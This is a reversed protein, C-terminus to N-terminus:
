PREVRNCDSQLWFWFPECSGDFRYEVAKIDEFQFITSNLESLLMYSGASTSANPIIRSFDKFDVIAIGDPTISVSNLMGATDESFWSILGRAQEDPAPGALQAELAARLRPETETATSGPRIVAQVGFSEEPKPDKCTFYVLVEGGRLQPTPVAGMPGCASTPRPESSPVCGAIMVMVMVSLLASLPLLIAIRRRWQVMM